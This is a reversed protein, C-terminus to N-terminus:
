PGDKLCILYFCCNVLSNYVSLLWLQVEKLSSSVTDMVDKEDFWKGGYRAQYYNSIRLQLEPPLKMFAM